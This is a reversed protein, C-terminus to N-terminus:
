SENTAEQGLVLDYFRTNIARLDGVGFQLLDREQQTLFNQPDEPAFDGTRRRYLVDSRFFSAGESSTKTMMSERDFCSFSAVYIHDTWHTRESNDLTFRAGTLTCHVVSTVIGNCFLWEDKPRPLALCLYLRSKEIRSKFLLMLKREYERAKIIHKKKFM